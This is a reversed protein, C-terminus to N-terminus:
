SRLLRRVRRDGIRMLKAIDKVTMGHIDHLQKATKIYDSETLPVRTESLAFSMIEEDTMEVVHVPIEYIGCARAALVRWQGDIVEYSEGRSRVLVPNGIGFNRVSQVFVDWNSLWRTLEFPVLQWLLVYKFM